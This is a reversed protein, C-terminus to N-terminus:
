GNKIIREAIVNVDKTGFDKILDAESVRIGKKLDSFVTDSVVVNSMSVPKGQKVLIAGDVDVLIEYRKGKISLKAPVQVM